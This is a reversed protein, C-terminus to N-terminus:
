IISLDEEDEKTPVYEEEFEEELPINQLLAEFANRINERSTSTMSLIEESKLETEISAGNTNIVSRADIWLQLDHLKTDPNVLKMIFALDSNISSNLESLLRLTQHPSMEDLTNRDSLKELLIDIIDVMKIMSKIKRRAIGVVMIKFKEEYGNIIRSVVANIRQEVLHDPDEDIYEALLRLEDGRGAEYFSPCDTVEERGYEGPLSEYVKCISEESNWQACMKCQEPIKPISM